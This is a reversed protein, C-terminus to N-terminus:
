YNQFKIDPSAETGSLYLQFHDTFVETATSGWNSTEEVEAFKLLLRASQPYLEKRVALKQLTWILESPFCHNPMFKRLEQTNKNEFIRSLTQLVVVPNVEALHMFCRLGWKTHFTKESDFLGGENCLQKALNQASSFSGLYSM